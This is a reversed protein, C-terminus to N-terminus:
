QVGLQKLQETMVLRVGADPEAGAAQKLQPIVSPEGLGALGVFAVARVDKGEDKLAQTLVRLAVPRRDPWKAAYKSLLRSSWLRLNLRQAKLQSVAIDFGADDDFDLLTESAMLRVFPQPDALLTGRLEADRVPGGESEERVVIRADFRARTAPQLPM